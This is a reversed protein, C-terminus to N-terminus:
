LISCCGEFLEDQLISGYGGIDQFFFFVTWSICTGLWNGSRVELSDFLVDTPLIEPNPILLGTNRCNKLNNCSARVFTSLTTDGRAITVVINAKRLRQIDTSSSRFFRRPNGDSFVM